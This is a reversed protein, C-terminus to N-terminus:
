ERSGITIGLYFCSEMRLPDFTLGAAIPYVQVIWGLEFSYPSDFIPMERYYISEEIEGSVWNLAAGATFDLSYDESNGIPMLVGLVGRVHQDLGSAEYHYWKGYSASGYFGLRAWPHIDVRAAIGFDIPQFGLLLATSPKERIDRPEDDKVQGYAIVTLLLLILTLLATRM